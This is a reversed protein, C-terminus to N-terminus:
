LHTGCDHPAQSPARVESDRVSRGVSGGLCPNGGLQSDRFTTTQGLDFSLVCGPTRSLTDTHRHSLSLTLLCHPLTRSPRSAVPGGRRRVETENRSVRSPLLKFKNGGFAVNNRWQRRAPHYSTSVPVVVVVIVIVVVLDTSCATTTKERGRRVRGKNGRPVTSQVKLYLDCSFKIDRAASCIYVM